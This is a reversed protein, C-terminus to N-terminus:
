GWTGCSKEDQFVEDLYPVSFPDFDSLSEPDIPCCFRCSKPHVIFPSKLLHNRMLSVNRDIRPYTYTLIIKQVYYQPRSNSDYTELLGEIRKWKETPDMRSPQCGEETLIKILTQCDSPKLDRICHLLLLFRQNQFRAIVDSLSNCISKPDISRDYYLIDQGERQIIHEEFFPRLDDAADLLSYNMSTSIQSFSIYDVIAHRQADTLARARRDCVWIHVGRRGSYVFLIHKFGFEERLIKNLVVMANNMFGWCKPCINAGQCCNRVPSYDDMDIDFVLERREPFFGSEGKHSMDM